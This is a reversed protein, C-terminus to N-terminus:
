TNCQVSGLEIQYVQVFAAQCKQVKDAKPEVSLPKVLALCQASELQHKNCEPLHLTLDGQKLDSRLMSLHVCSYQYLCQRPRVKLLDSAEQSALYYLLGEAVWTTPIGQQWGAERLRDAWKVDLM